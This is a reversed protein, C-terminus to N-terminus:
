GATGLLAQMVDYPTVIGLLVGGEMVLARHVRGRRFFRGVEAPSEDPHVTFAAPTMIDRVRRDGFVDAPLSGTAAERLVDTASVVGVLKGADSVVPAGTIREGLLVPVLESIRMGPPVTVVDTQMIERVTAPVAPVHPTPNGRRAAAAAWRVSPM